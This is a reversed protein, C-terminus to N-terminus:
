KVSASSTTKKDSFELYLDTYGAIMQELTFSRRVTASANNSMQCLIENNSVLLEVAAVFGELHNPEYLIGNVNQEIIEACGGVNSSVVPLGLGMGELIVTPFGESLSTLVMIDIAQMYDVVDSTYGTFLIKHELGLGSVRSKAHDLLAGGGVCLLKLNQNRKSLEHFGDILFDPNKEKRFNAVIGLLICDATIGLKHRIRLRLDSDLSFTSTEIGNNIVRIPGDPVIDEIQYKSYKSNCIFYDCKKLFIKLLEYKAKRLMQFSNVHNYVMAIRRGILKIYWGAILGKLDFVNVVDIANDRCYNAIRHLKRWEFWPKAIPIITVPIGCKRFEELLSVKDSTVCVHMCVDQTFHRAFNLLRMEPGGRELDYIIFLVNVM